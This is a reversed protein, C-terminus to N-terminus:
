GEEAATLCYLADQVRTHLSAAGHEDLQDIAFPTPNDRLKRDLYECRQSLAIRLQDLEARNLPPLTITIPVPKREPEPHSTCAIPPFHM